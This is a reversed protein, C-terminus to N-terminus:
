KIIKERLAEVVMAMTNPFGASDRMKWINAEVTKKSIDLVSAIEKVTSGDALMQLTQIRQPTLNERIKQIDPKTSMDFM